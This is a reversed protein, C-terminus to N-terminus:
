FVRFCASYIRRKIRYSVGHVTLIPSLEKFKAWACRVRARAVEMVGGGSGLTDGLYCFKPVCEVKVGPDLEVESLLVVQASDGNLCRRCRLDAVYRLRGSIGSCRKHIRKHCAVCKISIDGVGKRCMGCPYKRSDEAQGIRVQCRMVKTKGINVRLSKLEMGKKWRHLKEMLLEEMETVLVLDDAYLLEMLLGKTGTTGFGNGTAFTVSVKAFTKFHIEFMALNPSKTM